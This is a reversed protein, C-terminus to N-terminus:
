AMRSDTPCCNDNEDPAMLIAGPLTGTSRFYHCPFNRFNLAKRDDLLSGKRQHSLAVPQGTSSRPHVPRHCKGSTGVKRGDKGHNVVAESMDGGGERSGDWHWRGLVVRGLAAGGFGRVQGGFGGMDGGFGGEGGGNVGVGLRGDRSLNASILPFLRSKSFIGRRGQDGM